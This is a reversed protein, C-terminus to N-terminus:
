MPYFPIGPAVQEPTYSSPLWLTVLTMGLHNPPEIVLKGGIHAIKAQAERIRKRNDHHSILAQYSILEM